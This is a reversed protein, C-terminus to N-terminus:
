LRALLMEGTTLRSEASLLPAPAHGGARPGESKGGQAEAPADGNGQGASAPEAVARVYYTTNPTLARILVKAPPADFPVAWRDSGDARCELQYRLESVSTGALPQWNWSVALSHSKAGNEAITPPPLLKASGASGGPGFGGFSSARSLGAPPHSDKPHGASALLTSISDASSPRFLTTPGDHASAAGGNALLSPAEGGFLSALWAAKDGESM